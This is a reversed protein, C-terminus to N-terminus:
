VQGASASYLLIRETRIEHDIWAVLLTRPRPALGLTHTGRAGHRSSMNQDGDLNGNNSLIVLVQCGGHHLQECAVAVLQAGDVPVNCGAWSVKLCEADLVLCVYQGCVRRVLLAEPVLRELVQLQRKLHVYSARPRGRRGRFHIASTARREREPATMHQNSM